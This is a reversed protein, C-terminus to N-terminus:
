FPGTTILLIVTHSFAMAQMGFCVRADSVSQAGHCPLRVFLPTFLRAKPSDIPDPNTHAMSHMLVESCECKLESVMM